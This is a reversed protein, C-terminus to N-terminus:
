SLFPQVRNMVFYEKYTEVITCSFRRLIGKICEAENASKFLKEFASRAM